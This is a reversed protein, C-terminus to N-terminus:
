HVADARLLVRKAHRRVVYVAEHAPITLVCEVLNLFRELRAFHLPDFHVHGALRDRHPPRLRRSIGSAPAHHDPRFLPALSLNARFQGESGSGGGSMVVVRTGVASRSASASRYAIWCSSPAPPM